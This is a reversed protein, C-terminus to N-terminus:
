LLKEMEHYEMQLRQAKQECVRMLDCLVGLLYEYGEPERKVRLQMRDILAKIGALNTPDVTEVLINEKVFQKIERM